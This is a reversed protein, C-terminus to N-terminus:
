AAPAEPTGREDQCGAAAVPGPACLYAEQDRVQPNRGYRMQYHTAVRERHQFDSGDTGAARPGARSAM